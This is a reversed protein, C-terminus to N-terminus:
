QKGGYNEKFTPNLKVKQQIKPGTIKLRFILSFMRCNNKIKKSIKNPIIKVLEM